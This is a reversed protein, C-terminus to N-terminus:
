NKKTRMKKLSEDRKINRVGKVGIDWGWSRIYRAVSPTVAATMFLKIPVFLKTIAMAMLVTSWVSVHQTNTHIQDHHNYQSHSTTSSTSNPSSSSTSPTSSTPHTTKSIATNTDSRPFTAPLEDDEKPIVKVSKSSSSPSSSSSSSSGTIIQKFSELKAFIKQPDLGLYTISCYACIFFISSFGFYVLVAVRGYERILSSLTRRPVHNQNQNEQNQQQNKDQQSFSASPSSSLSSSSSSSSSSLPTISPSNSLSNTTQTFYCSQIVPHFRSRTNHTTTIPQFSFPQSSLLNFPTLVSLRSSNSNSQFKSQSISSSSTSTTHFSTSSCSSIWPSLIGAKTLTTTTTPPFLIRMRQHSLKLLGTHTKTVVLSLSM